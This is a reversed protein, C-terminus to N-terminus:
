SIEYCNIGSFPDRVGYLDAELFFMFESRLESSRPYEGGVTRGGALVFSDSSLGVPMLWPQSSFFFDDLNNEM